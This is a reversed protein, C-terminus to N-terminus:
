YTSPGLVFSKLVLTITPKKLSIPKEKEQSRYIFCSVVLHYDLKTTDYNRAFRYNPFHKIYFISLIPYYYSSVFLHFFLDLLNAYKRKKNFILILDSITLQNHNLTHLETLITQDAYDFNTLNYCNIEPFISTKIKVFNTLGKQM